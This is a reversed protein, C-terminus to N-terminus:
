SVLVLNDKEGFIVVGLTNFSVFYFLLNTYFISMNQIKLFKIIYKIHGKLKIILYKLHQYYFSQNSLCFWLKKGFL